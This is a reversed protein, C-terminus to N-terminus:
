NGMLYEASALSASLGQVMFCCSAKTRRRFPDSEGLQKGGSSYMHQLEVTAFFLDPLLFIQRPVERKKDNLADHM